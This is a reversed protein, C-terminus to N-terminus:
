ILGTCWTSGGRSIFEIIHIIYVLREHTRHSLSIILPFSILPSYLNNCPSHVGDRQPKNRSISNTNQVCNHLVNERCRPSVSRKAFVCSKQDVQPKKNWGERVDLVSCQELVLGTVESVSKNVRLLQNVGDRPIWMVSPMENLVLRSGPSTGEAQPHHNARPPLRPLATAAEAARQHRGERERSRREGVDRYCRCCLCRGNSM